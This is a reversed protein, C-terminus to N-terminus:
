PKLLVGDAEFAYTKKSETILAIEEKTKGADEAYHRLEDISVETVFAKGNLVVEQGSINKPVFFSYDKFTVRVENEGDLNLTMWCGKAQCVGKVQAKIKSTVTDGVRMNKYQNALTSVKITNDTTIKEGYSSYALEKASEINIVERKNDNKCSCLFVIVLILSLQKIM